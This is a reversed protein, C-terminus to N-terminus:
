HYFRNILQKLSLFHLLALTQNSRLTKSTGFCLFSEKSTRLCNLQVKLGNKKGDDSEFIKASSNLSNGITIHILFFFKLELIFFIKM